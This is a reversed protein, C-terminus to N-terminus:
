PPSPPAFSPSANLSLPPLGGGGCREIPNVNKRCVTDVLSQEFSHVAGMVVHLAAHELSLAGSRTLVDLLGFAERRGAGQAEGDLATVTPERSLFSPLRRRVWPENSLSLIAARLACGEADSREYAADLEGPVKTLDRSAAAAAAAAAPCPAGQAHTQAGLQQAQTWEAGASGGGAEEGGAGGVGGVGFPDESMVKLPESMVKNDELIVDQDKLEGGIVQAM